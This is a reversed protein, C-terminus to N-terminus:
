SEILNNREQLAPFDDEKAYFLLNAMPRFYIAEESPQLSSSCSHLCEINLIEFQLHSTNNSM